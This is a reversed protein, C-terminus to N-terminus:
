KACAKVQEEYAVIVAHQREIVQQATTGQPLELARIQRCAAPMPQAVPIEVLRPPSVVPASSCCWLMLLFPSAFATSSLRM